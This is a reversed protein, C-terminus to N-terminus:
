NQIPSPYLIIFIEDIRVLGCLDENQLFCSKEGALLCCRAGTCATECQKHGADTSINSIDCLDELNSPPTEVFMDESLNQTTNSSISTLIISFFIFLLVIIVFGIFNHRRHDLSDSVLHGEEEDKKDHALEKSTQKGLPDQLEKEYNEQRGNTGSIYKISRKGIDKTNKLVKKYSNKPMERNAIELDEDSFNDHDSDHNPPAIHHYRKKRKQLKQNIVRGIKAKQNRMSSRVRTKARNDIRVSDQDHEDIFEDDQTNM